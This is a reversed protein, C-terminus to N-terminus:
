AYRIKDIFLRDKEIYNIITSLVKFHNDILNQILDRGYMRNSSKMNATLPFYEDYCLVGKNSSINDMIDNIAKKDNVNILVLADLLSSLCMLGEFNLTRKYEAYLEKIKSEVLLDYNKSCYLSYFMLSRFVKTLTPELSLLERNYVQDLYDRKDYFEEQSIIREIETDFKGNKHKFYYRLVLTIDEYRTSLMNFGGDLQLLGIYNEVLTSTDNKANAVALANSIYNIDNKDCLMLYKNAIKYYDNTLIDVMLQTLQNFNLYPNVTRIYIWEFDHENCYKLVDYNVISKQYMYEISTRYEVPNISIYDILKNSFAQEFEGFSYLCECIGILEESNSHLGNLFGAKVIEKFISKLSEEANKNLLEFDINSVYNFLSYNAKNAIKNDLYDQLISVSLALMTEDFKNLLEENKSIYINIEDVSKALNNLEDSKSFLRKCEKNVSLVKDYVKKKLEELKELNGNILSRSNYSEQIILYYDDFDNFNHLCEIVSQFDRMQKSSNNIYTNIVYQKFIFKLSALAKSTLDEVDINQTNITRFASANKIEKAVLFNHLEANFIKVTKSDFDNLLESQDKEIKNIEDLCSEVNPISKHQIFLKSSERELENIRQYILKKKENIKQLNNNIMDKNVYSTKITEYFNDFDSLDLNFKQSSVYLYLTFGVIIMALGLSIMHYWAQESDILFFYMVLTAAFFVINLVYVYAKPHFDYFTRYKEYNKYAIRNRYNLIIDRSINFALTIIALAIIGLSLYVLIQEKM